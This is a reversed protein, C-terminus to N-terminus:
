TADAIHHEYKKKKAPTTASAEEEEEEKFHSCVHSLAAVLQYSTSPHSRTIFWLTDKQNILSAWFYYECM